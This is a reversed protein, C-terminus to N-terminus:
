GYAAVGLSQGIAALFPLNSTSFPGLLQILILNRLCASELEILRESDNTSM